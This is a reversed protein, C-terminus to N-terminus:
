CWNRLTPPGHRAWSTAVMAGLSMALIRWPGDTGSAHAADRVAQAM